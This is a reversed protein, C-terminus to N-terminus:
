AREGRQRNFLRVRLAHWAMTAPQVDRHLRARLLRDFFGDLQRCDWAGAMYSEGLGLSGQALMRDFVAADNVQMDWPRAGDIRIDARALLSEVLARSSRSPRASPAFQPMSRSM